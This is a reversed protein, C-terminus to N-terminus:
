IIFEKDYDKNVVIITLECNLLMEILNKFTLYNLDNFNKAYDTNTTFGINVVTDYDDISVRDIYLDGLKLLYYM